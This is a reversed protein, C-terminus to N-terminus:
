ILFKEKYLLASELSYKKVDEISYKIISEVTVEKRDLTVLSQAPSGITTTVVDQVIPVDMVPIKYHWGSEKVSKFKGMRLVVAQQYDNVIFIPLLSDWIELIFDLLKDFM